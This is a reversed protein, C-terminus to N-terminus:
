IEDWICKEDLQKWRSANEKNRFNRKDFHCNDDKGSNADLIHKEDVCFIADM